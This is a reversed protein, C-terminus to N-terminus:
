TVARRSVSPGRAAIAADIEAIQAPTLQWNLAAANDLIQDPRKAGCLAVTIGPRQITWNLVLQAITSGISDALPRLRDLFDQTKNWEEGQFMPYKRRGDREAFVYDRPLKGALLGKMLPWYVMVSVNNARCWPLEDAEIERQLMNYHPQYASLPCVAHFEALQAANANSLGAARIKGADLLERFATATQALPTNPDPAHLYYLDIVDIGLRDLSEECHRRITEPRGDRVQNQEANWSIGGKTAIVVQDRFPRLVRGVMRESEGNYGYCYATDFFNLGAEFAASITALSAQETVDLSTIGAIPWCGLALPTVELETTGITRRAFVSM